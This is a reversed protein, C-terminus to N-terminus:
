AAGRRIQAVAWAMAWALTILSIGGVGVIVIGWVARASLELGVPM